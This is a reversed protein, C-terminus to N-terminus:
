PGSPNEAHLPDEIISTFPQLAYDSVLPTAACATDQTELQM